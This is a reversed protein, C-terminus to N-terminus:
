GHSGQGEAPLEIVLIGDEMRTVPYVRTGLPWGVYRLVAVATVIYNASRAQKRVRYFHPEGTRAPRLAIARDDNRTQYVVQAPRGLADWAAANLGLTGQAHIVVRPQPAPKPPKPAPSRKAWISWGDGEDILMAGGGRGGPQFPAAALAEAVRLERLATEPTPGFASLGHRDGDQAIWHTGDWFLLTVRPLWGTPSPVATAAVDALTRMDM